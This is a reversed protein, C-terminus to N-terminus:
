PLILYNNQDPKLTYGSGYGALVLEPLENILVGETECVVHVEVDHTMNMVTIKEVNLKVPELLTITVVGSGGTVVILGDSGECIYNSNVRTTNGMSEEGPTQIADQYIFTCNEFESVSTKLFRYFANLLDDNPKLYFGSEIIPHKNDVIDQADLHVAMISNTLKGPKMLWEKLTIATGEGFRTSTNKYFGIIKRLPFYISAAASVLSEQFELGSVERVAKYTYRIVNDGPLIYDNFNTGTIQFLFEGDKYIKYGTANEVAAITGTVIGNNVAATISGIAGLVLDPM